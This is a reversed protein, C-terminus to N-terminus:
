SNIQHSHISDSYNKILFDRLNVKAGVLGLKSRMRNRYWCVSRPALHLIQAIEKNSKGQRILDAIKLESPNFKYQIESNPAHASNLLLGMNDQIARYNARCSSNHHCIAMKELYPLILKRFNGLLQTEIARKEIERNEVVAKLAVNLQGIRQAMELREADAKATDYYPNDNMEKLIMITFLKETWSIRQLIVEKKFSSGDKLEFHFLFNGPAAAAEEGFKELLSLGSNQPTPSFKFPGKELLEKETVKFLGLAKDNCKICSTRQFIFVPLGAADFLRLLPDPKVIECNDIYQRNGDNRTM